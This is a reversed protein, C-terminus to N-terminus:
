TQSVSFPKGSNLSLLIFSYHLILVIQSKIEIEVKKHQVPVLCLLSCKCKFTDGRTLNWAEATHHYVCVQLVVLCYSLLSVSTSLSSLAVIVTNSFAFWFHPVMPLILILSSNFHWHVYHKFLYINFLTFNNQVTNTFHPHMNCSSYMAYM